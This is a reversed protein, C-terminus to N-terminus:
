ITEESSSPNFKNKITMLHEVNFVIVLVLLLSRYMSQSTTKELERLGEDQWMVKKLAQLSWPSIQLLVRLLDERYEM